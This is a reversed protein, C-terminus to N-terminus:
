FNFNNFYKEIFLFSFLYLFLPSLHEGERGFRERERNKEIERNSKREGVIERERVISIKGDRPSVHPSAVKKRRERVCAHALTLPLLLFIGEEDERTQGSVRDRERQIAVSIEIELCGRERERFFNERLRERKELM